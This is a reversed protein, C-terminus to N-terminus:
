FAYKIALQIIRQDNATTTVQGSTGAGLTVNPNGWNVHNLVNFVEARLEITHASIRLNRSFAMDANWFAPGRLYGKPVNGWVGATNQAFAAM